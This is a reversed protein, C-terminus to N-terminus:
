TRSDKIIKSLSTSSSPESDITDFLAKIEERRSQEQEPPEEAAKIVWLARGNDNVQVTQGARTWRKINEPQRLLKRLSVTKM